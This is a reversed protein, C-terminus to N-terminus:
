TSALAPATEKRGEEVTPLQKAVEYLVYLSPWRVWNDCYLGNWRFHTLFRRYTLLAHIIDKLDCGPPFAEKYDVEDIDLLNYIAFAQLSTDLKSQMSAVVDWVTLGFKNMPKIVVDDCGVVWATCVPPFTAFSRTAIPHLHLRSTNKACTGTSYQFFTEEEPSKKEQESFAVHEFLPNPILSAQLDNENEDPYDLNDDEDHGYINLSSWYPENPKFESILMLEANEDLRTGGCEPHDCFGDQRIIRTALNIWSIHGPEEDPGLGLGSLIYAKEFFREANRENGYLAAFHSCANYFCTHTRLDSEPIEEKIMMLLENPLKGFFNRLHM